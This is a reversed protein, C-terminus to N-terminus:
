LNNGKEIETQRIKIFCYRCFFIVFLICSLSLSSIIGDQQQKIHQILKAYKIVNYITLLFCSLSLSIFWLWFLSDKTRTLNDRDSLGMQLSLINAMLGFLVISGMFLLDENFIIKCALYFNDNVFLTTGIIFALMISLPLYLQFCMRTRNSYGMGKLMMLNRLQLNIIKTNKILCLNINKMFNSIKIFFPTCKKIINFNISM